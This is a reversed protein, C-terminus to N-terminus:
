NKDDSTGKSKKVPVLRIEVPTGLEPILENRAFTFDDVQGTDLSNDLVATRDHYNTVISGLKDAAYAGQKDVSSGVFVWSAKSMPRGTRQDKLLEEARVERTGEPTDWRVYVDILAGTPADWGKERLAPDPSVYWGPNRGPELGLLLLATHLHLPSIPSVLVSEHLKGQETCVMVEILGDNMNVKAPFRVERAASDLRVLGIAFSHPGLKRVVKRGLVDRPKEPPPQETAAAEDQPNALSASLFLCGAFIVALRVRTCGFWM